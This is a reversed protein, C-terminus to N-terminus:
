VLGMTCGGNGGQWGTLLGGAYEQCARGVTDLRSCGTHGGAGRTERAYLGGHYLSKLSEPSEAALSPAHHKDGERRSRYRSWGAGGIGGRLM